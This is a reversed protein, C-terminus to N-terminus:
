RHLISIGLLWPMQCAMYGFRCSTNVVCNHLWSRLMSACRIGSAVGRRNNRSMVTYMVHKDATHTGLLIQKEAELSRAKFLYAVM